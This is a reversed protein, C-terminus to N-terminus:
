LNHDKTCLRIPYLTFKQLHMPEALTTSPYPLDRLDRSFPRVEAIELKGRGDIKLGFDHGVNVWKGERM